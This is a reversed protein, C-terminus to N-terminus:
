KIGGDAPTDFHRALWLELLKQQQEQTANDIKLTDGDLTIEISRHSSRTLGFKELIAEILHLGWGRGALSLAALYKRLSALVSVLILAISALGIWWYVNM